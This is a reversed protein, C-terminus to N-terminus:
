KVPRGRSKKLEPKETYITSKNDLWIIDKPLNMKHYYYFCDFNCASKWGKVKGDIQKEFHIRKRPTIIQLNKDKWERFYATNIKSSPLLLIFTKKKLVIVKDKPICQQIDESAYKPAM